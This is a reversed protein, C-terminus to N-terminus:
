LLLLLANALTTLYKSYKNTRLFAFCSNTLILESQERFPTPPAFSLYIDMIFPFLSLLLLSWILPFIGPSHM